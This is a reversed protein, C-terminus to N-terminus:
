RRPPLGLVARAIDDDLAWTEVTDSNTLLVITLDDDPYWTLYSSFGVTNGGHRILAHGDHVSRGLGYGYDTVTGNNLTVPTIMRRYSEPSVVRGAHLAQQWLLLDSATSCVSGVAFTWSMDLFTPNRLEGGDLTYGHARKALIERSTCQSTHGMGLPEFIRTRLYDGYSMGSVREVIMGLLYYGSNRYSFKEGPPFELDRNTILAVIRDHSTTTPWEARTEDGNYEVIGHTHSLLHHVTVRGGRVHLGPVLSTVDDDLRLRGQDVLQLIAAATFQKTLSAIQYITDLRASVGNEVDALGYGRAVIRRGRHDVLLTVGPIKQASRAAEVIADIRAGLSHRADARSGTSALSGTPWSFLVAWMVSGVLMPTPM